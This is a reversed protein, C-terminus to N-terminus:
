QFLRHGHGYPACLSIVVKPPTVRTKGNLISDHMFHRKFTKLDETSSDGDAAINKSVTRKASNFSVRSCSDRTTTAMRFKCVSLLAARGAREPCWSAMRANKIFHEQFERSGMLEVKYKNFLTNGLLKTFFDAPNELGPVQLIQMENMMVHEKLIHFDLGFHRSLKQKGGFRLLKVASENDEKTTTPGEVNVASKPFQSLILKLFANTKAAKVLAM